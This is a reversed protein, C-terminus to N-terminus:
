YIQKIELSFSYDNDNMALTNGNRDLIRFRLKELNIPGFYERAKYINDASNEFIVVNSGSTLVIRAMINNGLYSTDNSLIMFNPTFNNNFDDVEFFVYNDTQSGYCSESSLYCYYTVESTTDIYTKLYNSSTLTYSASRFGIYWGLSNSQTKLSDELSFDVTFYFDPSYYSNDANDYFAHHYNSDTDMTHNAARLVTKANYSNIDFILYNLAGGIAQFYNNVCTIFQSALYNGDPITITYSCDSYVSMNYLYITFKNNGKASTISYWSNPLEMSALKISVVNQMPNALKYLFDNTNGNERYMSDIVLSRTIVRRELPNLKGTFFDNGTTVNIFEHEDREIIEQERDTKNEIMSYMDKEPDFSTNSINSLLHTPKPEYKNKLLKRKIIELLDHQNFGDEYATSGTLNRNGHKKRHKAQELLRKSQIYERPVKKSKEPPIYYFNYDNDIYEDNGISEIQEFLPKQTQIPYNYIKTLDESEYDMPGDYSYKKTDQNFSYKSSNVADKIRPAASNPQATTAFNKNKLLFNNQKTFPPNNYNDIYFFEGGLQNM